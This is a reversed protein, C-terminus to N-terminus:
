ADPWQGELLSDAAVPTGDTLNQHSPRDAPLAIRASREKNAEMQPRGARAEPRSPSWTCSSSGTYRQFDGDFVVLRCGSAAASAAIWRDALSGVCVLGGGREWESDIKGM